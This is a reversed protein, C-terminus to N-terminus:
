HKLHENQLINDRELIKINKEIDEIEVECRVINKANERRQDKLEQQTQLVGIQITKINVTFFILFLVAGLILINISLFINLLVERTDFKKEKLDEM